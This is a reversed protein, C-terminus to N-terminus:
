FTDLLEMQHNNGNNGVILCTGVEYLKAQFRCQDIGQRATGGVVSEMQCKPQLDARFASHLISSLFCAVVVNWDSNM